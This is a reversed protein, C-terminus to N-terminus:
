HINQSIQFIPMIMAFVIFGVVVAMIVIMLPEIITTMTKIVRDTEKEYADAVRQLTNELNGTEEGVAVMNVAVPPFLKSEAMRKSLREGEKINEQFKQIESKLIRNTIVEETIALAKLIQVGNGLLTGLTRGFKAIERKRILEGILPLRLKFRDFQLAGAETQVFKRIMLVATVVTLLMAWWWTGIFHTLSLLLQTSVPLEMDSDQFMVMFNPVVVTFLVIIVLVCVVMMFAPYTLASIIKSRTEQEAEMFDALREMVADLMGGVEGARVMSCYLPSFVRSNKALADCFAMGGQVDSDVAKIVRNMRPNDTQQSIVDLCRVLPLGARLLDSIQRSFTTVDKSSIRSFTQLSIEQNLGRGGGREKVSIPFVRMQQLKNIVLKRNDAELIGEIVEGSLKKAKYEYLM